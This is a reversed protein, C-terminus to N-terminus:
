RQSENENQDVNQWFLLELKTQITIAVITSKCVHKINRKVWDNAMFVISGTLQLKPQTHTTWEFAASRIM